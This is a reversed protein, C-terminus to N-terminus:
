FNDTSSKVSPSDTHGYLLSSSNNSYDVCQRPVTKLTVTNDAPLRDNSVTNVAVCRYIGADSPRVSEIQLTGSPLVHHRGIVCTFVLHLIVAVSM